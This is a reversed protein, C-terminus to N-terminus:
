FRNVFITYNCEGYLLVTKPDVKRYIENIKEAREKSEESVCIIEVNNNEGFQRFGELM